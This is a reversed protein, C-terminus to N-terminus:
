ITYNQLRALKNCEKLREVNDLPFVNVKRDCESFEVSM